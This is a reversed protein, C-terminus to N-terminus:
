STIDCNDARIKWLSFWQVHADSIGSNTQVDALTWALVGILIFADLGRQRKRLRIEM